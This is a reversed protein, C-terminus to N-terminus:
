GLKLPQNWFSLLFSDPSGLFGDLLLFSQHSVSLWTRRYLDMWFEQNLFHFLLAAPTWFKLASPFPSVSYALFGLATEHKHCTCCSMLSTIIFHNGLSVLAGAPFPPFMLEQVHSPDPFCSYFAVYALLKKVWWVLFFAALCIILITFLCMYFVFSCALLPGWPPLCPWLPGGCQCGGLGLLGAICLVTAGLRGFM